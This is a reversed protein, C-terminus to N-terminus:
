RMVENFLAVLGPIHPELLNVTARAYEQTEGQAHAHDRLAVMHFLNRLDQKYLWHTYHNLHLHYRAQEMAIGDNIALLYNEYSRKCDENLRDIYHAARMAQDPDSLDVLNGGQKKNKSQMMVKDIAPIYWEAPLQVYRGSVENLSVTRHRVLQRAVSIPLKMELWVEVMEFPTMHKNVALYKNLKMEVEYTRTQDANNFSMRASNAVDVDDADFDRESIVWSDGDHQIKDSRRTPGALNRLIVYGHDLVNTKHL